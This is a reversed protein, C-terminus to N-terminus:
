KPVTVNNFGTMMPDAIKSAAAIDAWRTADGYAHAAMQYLNGGGVVAQKNGGPNSVLALNIQIRSAIAGMRYLLPLQASATSQAILNAVQGAVPQQPLIQGLVPISALTATNRSIMSQVGAQLAAMPATAAAIAGAASGSISSLAGIEGVPGSVGLAVLGGAIPQAANTVASLSASATSVLGSITPDNIGNALQSMTASDQNIADGPSTESPDTIDQTQDRIVECTITFPIWYPKKFDASFNSVIVSYQFVGWTLTCILGSRRLYDLFRARDVAGNTLFIGSWTLAADDPGMADVIRLGGVMKHTCLMQEGGFTIQEPVETGAFQFSGNPTDLTLSIAQPASGASLSSVSM